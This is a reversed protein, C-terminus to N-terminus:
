NEIKKKIPRNIQGKILERAIVIIRAQLKNCNFNIRNFQTGRRQMVPEVESYSITYVQGDSSLLLLGFPTCRIQEVAIPLNRVLLRDTEAGTLDVRLLASNETLCQDQWRDIWSKNRM